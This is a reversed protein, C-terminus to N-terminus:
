EVNSPSVGFHDKFTKSFHALDNFGCEFAVEAVSQSKLQLLEKARNLKKLRIYQAPSDNFTKKFERKFSSESMNCLVSLEAVTIDRYLHAEVVEKIQYTTPSFLNALLERVAEGKETQSLLLFLEKVKLILLEDNVLEPHEFYFLVSKIYQNMLHSTAVRAFNNKLKRETPKLFGPLQSEYVKKLVEPYFHVAIASYHEHEEDPVCFNFFNGCKMLLADPPNAELTEIESIATCKGELVYLLCAENDMLNPLRLPPVAKAKEFLMKGFLDISKHELIM